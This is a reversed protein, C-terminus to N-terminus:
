TEGKLYADYLINMRCPKLCRKYERLGQIGMDEEDNFYRYENSFAKMFEEIAVYGMNSISPLYKTGAINCVNESIRYGVSVASPTGDVYVIIGIAGLEDFHNIIFRDVELGSTEAKDKGNHTEGWARIIEEAIYTNDSNLMVTRVNHRRYFQNMTRRLSSFKKGTMAAHETADYIYESDGENEKIEFINPYHREIFDVDHATLKMLKLGKIRVLENLFNIKAKESGVPFNWATEGHSNNKISYMDDELHVKIDMSKAWIYASLFTKANTDDKAITRIREMRSKIGIDLEILSIM